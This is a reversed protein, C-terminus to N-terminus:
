CSSLVDSIQLLCAQEGLVDMTLFDKFMSKARIIFTMHAHHCFIDMKTENDMTAVHVHVHVHIVRVSNVINKLFCTDRYVMEHWFVNM